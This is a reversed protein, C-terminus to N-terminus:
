GDHAPSFPGLPSRLQPLNSTLTLTSPKSPLTDDEAGCGFLKWVQSMLKRPISSRLYPLHLGDRGSLPGFLAIRFGFIGNGLGAINPWWEAFRAPLQEGRRGLVFAAHRVHGSHLALCLEEITPDACHLCVGRM